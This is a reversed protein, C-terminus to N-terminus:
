GTEPSPRTSRPSTVNPSSPSATLHDTPFVAVSSSHFAVVSYSCVQEWIISRAIKDLWRVM